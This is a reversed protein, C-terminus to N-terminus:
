LRGALWGKFAPFLQEKKIFSHSALKIDKVLSSLPVTPHIHTLIHIHDDMGNIHYLHCKNNKLIGWIYKYLLDRQNKELCPLRYKTGFVIHYHIQLYTSM